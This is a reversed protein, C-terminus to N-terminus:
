FKVLKDGYANMAYKLEMFTRNSGQKWLVGFCDIDFKLEM